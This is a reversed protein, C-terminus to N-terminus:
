NRRILLQEIMKLSDPLVFYDNDKGMLEVHVCRKLTLQQMNSEPTELMKGGSSFAYALNINDFTYNKFLIIKYDKLQKANNIFLLANILFYQRGGFSGADPERLWAFMSSSIIKDVMTIDFYFKTEENDNNVVTEMFNHKKEKFIVNVQPNYIIEKAKNRDSEVNKVLFNYAELIRKTQTEAWRKHSLHKDPHYKKLLEKTVKKIDAVESDERVNLIKLHKSRQDIM